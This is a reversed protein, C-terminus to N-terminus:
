ADEVLPIDIYVQVGKGHSALSEQHIIRNDDVHVQGGHLKAIAQVLALGLGYGSIKGTQKYRHFPLLIKQREEEPIGQGCDAVGLEVAQQVKRAFLIIPTNAPAYKLANDLLNSLAQMMLSFDGYIFCGQPDDLVLTNGRLEALPHYYDMLEAFLTAIGLTEFQRKCRGSEIEGIRLISRSMRQIRVIEESAVILEDHVVTDDTHEMANSLQNHLRTLPTGLEHAIYSSIGKVEKMLMNIQDLARNIHRALQDLEDHQHSMPIRVISNGAAYEQMVHRIKDARRMSKIGSRISIITAFLLVVFLGAGATLPLIRVRELMPLIDYASLYLGGDQLRIVMGMLEIEQGNSGKWTTHHWGELDADGWELAAVLEADGYVVRRNKDLLLVKRESRYVLPDWGYLDKRGFESAGLGIAKRVRVDTMVMEQVHNYLVGEILSRSWVVTALTVLLFSFVISAAQQFSSTELISRLTKRVKVLQQGVDTWRM